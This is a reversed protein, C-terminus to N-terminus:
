GEHFANILRELSELEGIVEHSRNVSLESLNNTGSIATKM